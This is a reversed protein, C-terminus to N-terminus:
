CPNKADMSLMVLASIQEYLNSQYRFYIGAIIFINTCIGIISLFMLYQCYPVYKDMYCHNLAVTFLPLVVYKQINLFSKSCCYIGAIICINTWIVIITLLLIYWSYQLYKYMHCHNTSFIFLLFVASTWDFFIITQMVLYRCYLM